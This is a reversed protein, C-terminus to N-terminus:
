WFFELPNGIEYSARCLELGDGLTKQLDGYLLVDKAFYKNWAQLEHWGLYEEGSLYRQLQEIELQWLAM